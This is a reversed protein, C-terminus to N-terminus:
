YADKVPGLGRGLDKLSIVNRYLALPPTHSKTRAYFKIMALYNTLLFWM